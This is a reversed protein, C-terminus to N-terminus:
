DNYEKNFVQDIVEKVTDWEFGKSALFRGLKEYVKRKETIRSYRPMRKEALKKAKDFDSDKGNELLVEILDKDIGKQKLEMKIIRAAKPKIITRQEIFWKAFEEDNIFKHEKFNEVIRQIILEDCKKKKLYDRLEKESRPRFSLFNLSKKYFIEYNDM